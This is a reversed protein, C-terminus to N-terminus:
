AGASGSMNLMIGTKAITKHTTKTRLLLAPGLFGRTELFDLLLPEFHSRKYSSALIFFLRVLSTAFLKPKNEGLSNSLSHGTATFFQLQHPTLCRAGADTINLDNNYIGHTLSSLPTNFGLCFQTFRLLRAPSQRSITHASFFRHIPPAERNM